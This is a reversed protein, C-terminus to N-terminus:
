AYNKKYAPLNRNTRITHNRAVVRNVKPMSQPTNVKIGKNSSMPMQKPATSKILPM